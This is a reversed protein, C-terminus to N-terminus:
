KRLRVAIESRARQPSIKSWAAARGRSLGLACAIAVLDEGGQIGNNVLTMRAHSPKIAYHTRILGSLRDCSCHVDKFASPFLWKSSREESQRVLKELVSQLLGDLPLLGGRGCRLEVARSGDWVVDDVEITIIHTMQLGALSLLMGAQADLPITEDCINLVRRREEDSLSRLQLNSGAIKPIDFTVLGYERLWRTFACVYDRKKQGAGDFFIEIDELAMNRVSRHRITQLWLVVRVACHAHYLRAKASSLSHRQPDRALDSELVECYRSLIEFDDYNIKSRVEDLYRQKLRQFKDLGRQFEVVYGAEALFSILFQRVKEAVKLQGLTEVSVPEGLAVLDQLARRFHKKHFAIKYPHVDYKSAVALRLRAWYPGTFERKLRARFRCSSATHAHFQLDCNRCTDDPLLFGSELFLDVLANLARDPLRQAALADLLPREDRSIECAAKWWDRARIKQM